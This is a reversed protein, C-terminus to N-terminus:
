KRCLLQLRPGVRRLLRSFVPTRRVHNHLGQLPALRGPAVMPAPSVACNDFGAARGWSELEGASRLGINRYSRGSMLRVYGAQMRRPLWGVGWVNVHPEPALSYRNNTSFYATAGPMAVRRCEVFAPAPDILHEILDNATVAAFSEARFPLHEANACVLLAQVRAERLRVTGVALWRFAVDVGVVPSFRRAAAVLLGGTSCGVDLLPGQPLDKGLEELAAEAIAVEAMAHAAFKQALDRPVEPTISYYYDLMEAFSRNAAQELLRAGKARDDEISIYRDPLIRFDPIGCVVPYRRGCPDCCYSDGAQEVPGKCLPCALSIM